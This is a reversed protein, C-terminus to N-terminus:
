QLVIKKMRNEIEMESLRNLAIDMADLWEDMRKMTGMPLGMSSQLLLRIGSTKAMWALIVSLPEPHSSPRLHELYNLHTTLAIRLGTQNEPLSESLQEFFRTQQIKITKLVQLPPTSQEQSKITAMPTFSQLNQMLWESEAPTNPYSVLTHGSGVKHRYAYTVSDSSACAHHINEWVSRIKHFGGEIIEVTETLSDCLAKLPRSTGWFRAPTFFRGAGRKPNVSKTLYKALYRAPSKRCVEAVARTKSTDSLHTQSANKRFMDVSAREGVRHLVNIWWPKFGALIANRGIADAVHVCYHLHLAGRRQYEWCYFDLKNKAYKAVWAKLRHVIYSAWEAMARFSSETSGPLTGTLFLCQEPPATSEMAAGRRILARKAALGFSSKKNPLHGYGAGSRELKSNPALSLPAPIEGDPINAPSDDRDSVDVDATEDDDPPVRLAPLASWTTRIENNPFKQAVIRYM